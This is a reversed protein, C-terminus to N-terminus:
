ILDLILQKPVEIAVDSEFVDMNKAIEKVDNRFLGCGHQLWDNVRHAKEPIITEWELNKSKRIEEIHPNMILWNPSSNKTHKILNRKYDSVLYSSRSQLTLEKGRIIIKKGIVNKYNSASFENTIVNTIVNKICKPLAEELEKIELQAFKIAERKQKIKEEITMKNM